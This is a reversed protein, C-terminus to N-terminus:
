KAVSEKLVSEQKLTYMMADAEEIVKQVSSKNPYYYSHGISVTPLKHKSNRELLLKSFQLNYEDLLDLNKYLIVSFEDGGIRYCHGSHSYVEKITKAIEVLCYDGVDHGLTDNIEKFKNVDFFLVIANSNLDYLQADFCKRNLIGTLIDVQNILASYYIYLLTIVISSSTFLVWVEDFRFHIYLSGLFLVLDILLIYNNKAQYKLGLMFANFFLIISSILISLTVLFFYDGRHFYNQEDFYFITDTFLCSFGLIFNFAIISVILLSFWKSKINSFGWTLVLITSPGIFLVSSMLLHTILQLSSNTTSLHIVCWEIINSILLVIYSFIILNRHFKNLIDDFYVVIIASFINSVAIILLATYYNFM